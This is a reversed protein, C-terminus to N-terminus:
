KYTKFRKMADEDEEVKKQKGPKAQNKLKIAVNNLGRVIRDAEERSCDPTFIFIGDEITRTIQPAALWRSVTWNSWVAIRRNRNATSEMQLVLQGHTNMQVAIMFGGESSAIVRAQQIDREDVFAEKLVLLEVPASRLVKIRTTGLGGFENSELHM